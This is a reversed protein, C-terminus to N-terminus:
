FTFVKIEGDGLTKEVTGSGFGIEASKVPDILVEGGDNFLVNFIDVKGNKRKIALFKENVTLVEDGKGLVNISIM